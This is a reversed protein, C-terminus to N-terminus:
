DTYLKRSHVTNSMLFYHLARAHLIVLSFIEYGIIKRGYVLVARIFGYLFAGTSLTALAGFCYVSKYPLFTVLAFAIVVRCYGIWFWKNPAVQASEKKFYYVIGILAVAIGMRCYGLVLTFCELKHTKRLV